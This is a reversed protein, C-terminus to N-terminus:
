LVLKTPTYLVMWTLRKKFLCKSGVTKGDPHLDVLDWVEIDKMSRMKVNMADLRKKSEPDLLAAKYNAPEDHDGLEHEEADIYLCMRYPVRRTRTSRCIPNIDSQAEDIKAEQTMLSNELFEANRAIFVKNEPPYYFSYGM